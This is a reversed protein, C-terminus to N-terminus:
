LTKLFAKLQVKEEATLHEGFWHGRDMVFDPCKSVGLLATSAEREFVVRRQEPDSERGALAMGRVLGAVARVLNLPPAEPNMNMVLSVPVGRPLPGIDIPGLKGAAFRNVGVGAIVTGLLLAGFFTRAVWRREMGSRWTWAALLVLAAPVAWLWWWVRDLRTIVLAAAVSVAILLAVFGALRPRAWLLLFALVAALGVWLWTTLLGYGANGLVGTLLQPVFAAAIPISSDEAMRFIFGPDTSGVAPIQQRLDGYNAFADPRRKERSLLKDIGDDFAALRGSISPDRNFLGLSNNHLFPATAWLSILSAPRYYGPGGPPPYYTDNNDFADRPAASWPNFFRVGGVAPLNKYDESSFNDWVQGRMANTGVARASNTGVLTIPIRIDTSLFNDELFADRNGAPAGAHSELLDGYANFAASGRFAEWEDFRRPLVMQVNGAGPVPAHQWDDSFSIGFGAPQRSSHCVACNRLFVKRGKSAAEAEAAIVPRGQATAELKMPAVISRGDKPSRHTFFEVMYPIRYRDGARWFASNAEVTKVPFPRQPTFGLIPNHCRSWEEPFTGINLYVRSLAAFAGISDSGDLLVRPTHRPTVKRDGDELGRFYLNAEGQAEPPNELARALRANIDFVANITNANNIHDTSVLSADVTGPLQSAVFQYFLTNTKALNTFLTPPTWYQNGITSSMHEWGPNEPDPPPNLPHPGVHCFGCAMSVRFPRVLDPDASVGGGKEYFRDDGPKVVRDNWYSRAKAAAATNGFFDPNPMLRLGVVGSPYGYIAPDLGDYPLQALVKEYLAADGPEFLQTPHGPPPVPRQALEGTSADIDTDPQQMLIADGDAVDLYLGLLRQPNSKMGPQNMMGTTRFRTARERSDLMVMLDILGYGKEQIWGWFAENGEGWLVWTNQGRIGNRGKEDASWAFPELKGGPGSPVQDMLHFLNRNEAPFCREDRRNLPTGRATRGGQAEDEPANRDPGDLFEQWGKQSDPVHSAGPYANGAPAQGGSASQAALLVGCLLSRLITTRM